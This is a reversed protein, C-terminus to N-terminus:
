NKSSQLKLMSNFYGFKDTSLDLFSGQEIIKGSKMVYINNANSITSLRHAVVLIAMNKSLREVANQIASESESDLASTAEDLILIDPNRLLARALAIRQRQGGSLRTGRDGVITNIGEPLSTVFHDANALKLASWLDEDEAGEVSWLLNDKISSYFLMADQPVYGIKQRFSNQNFDNFKVGDILIEGSEPSQLGLILDVITSKGSGSEGIIATMEGMNISIDVNSITPSEDNYSFNLKNLTICSELKNFVINGDIEASLEAEEKLSVLQEYSPIFNNISINTHLMSSLIPFAALLSWLVAVLEPLASGNNLVVGLSIVSALIGFPTFLSPVSAALTQSRLSASVHNKFANLFRVISRKQEGFGLIIKAGQLTEDLVGLLKNSTKTDRRGFSYSIRNLLIFPISFILALLIATMTMMSNLFFPVSLYVLLQFLQALQTALHGLTDGITNMEKNMTNLLYGQKSKSFFDWKAKFFASMASKFLEYLIVYKIKLIAYRIAVKFVGNILNLAAFLLGFSWFHLAINFKNFLSMTILTVKNPDKLSPDLLYDALPVMSLITGAAILGELVLLFFLLLFYIPYLKLFEVLISMITIKKNM